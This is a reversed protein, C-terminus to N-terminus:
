WNVDRLHEMSLRCASEHEMLKPKGAVISCIFCDMSLHFEPYDFEVTMLFREPKEIGKRFLIQRYVCLIYPTEANNTNYYLIIETKVALSIANIFFDLTSASVSPMIAMAAVIMTSSNFSGDTFPHLPNHSSLCVNRAYALLKRM